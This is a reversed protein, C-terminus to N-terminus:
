ETAESSEAKAVVGSWSMKQRRRAPRPAATTNGVVRDIMELTKGSRASRAFAIASHPAAAPADTAIPGTIPPAKTSAM